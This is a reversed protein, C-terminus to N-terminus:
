DIDIECADSHSVNKLTDSTLYFSSWFSFGIQHRSVLKLHLMIQRKLRYSAGLSNSASISNLIKYSATAQNIISAAALIIFSLFAIMFVSFFFFALNMYLSGRAFFVVFTVLCTMAIWPALTGAIIWSWFRNSEDTLHALTAYKKLLSSIELEMMITSIETRQARDLYITRLHQNYNAYKRAIYYCLFLFMMIIALGVQGTMYGFATYVPTWVIIMVLKLVPSRIRIFAPIAVTGAVLITTFRILFEASTSVFLVLLRWLGEEGDSHFARRQPIMLIKTWRLAEEEEVFRFIAYYCLIWALWLIYLLEIFGYWLGFYPSVSGFLPKWPEHESMKFLILHKVLDLSLIFIIIARLKNRDKGILCTKFLLNEANFITEVNSMLSKRDRMLDFRRKFTLRPAM